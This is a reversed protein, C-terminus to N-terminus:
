EVLKRGATDKGSMLRVLLAKQGHLRNEAQDWVISHPGEIVADTIEEGRHAPLCHMVLADPSAQRVLDETITYGSFAKLRASREQEDGMSVWIDTYIVDADRVADSPSKFISVNSGAAIAQQVIQEKPQYAPPSAVTIEMGTLTSSLILSNCVNNGDGVWALKVDSLNKFREQLTLIDSLVQCPHEKDSLGNIVPVTSYRAFEEITSHHYARIMVADVYRALVRATDRIEEGRGLQMDHPNLFMAHGGLDSMGTEFSVRTRTSAKEFIMALQRGKLLEHPEGQHRAKKLHQADTVLSSLDADDLDLISILDKKM